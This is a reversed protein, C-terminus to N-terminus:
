QLGGVPELLVKEIDPLCGGTCFRFAEVLTPPQANRSLHFGGELWQERSEGVPVVGDEGKEIMGDGIGVRLRYISQDFGRLSIRTTETEIDQAGFDQLRTSQVSQGPWFITRAPMMARIHHSM